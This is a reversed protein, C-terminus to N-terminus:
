MGFSFFFNYIEIDSYIKKLNNFKNSIFINGECDETMKYYNIKNKKEYENNIKDFDFEEVNFCYNNIYKNINCNLLKYQIYNRGKNDIYNYDINGIYEKNYRKMFNIPKM